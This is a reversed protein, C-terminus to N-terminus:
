KPNGKGVGFTNKVIVPFKLEFCANCIDDEKFQKTLKTIRKLLEIRQSSTIILFKPTNIGLMACYKRFEAKNKIKSIVDFPISPLNLNNAIYSAMRTSSDEYTIIADFEMECKKMYEKVSDLSAEKEEINEHEAFIWDDFYDFAWTKNRCLCILRRFSLSKLSNLFPLQQVLGSNILLVNKNSYVDISDARDVNIESLVNNRKVKKDFLEQNNLHFYFSRKPLSFFEPEDEKLVTIDNKQKFNRSTYSKFILRCDNCFRGTISQTKFKQNSELLKKRIYDCKSCFAEIEM